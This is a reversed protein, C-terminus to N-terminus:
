GIRSQNFLTCKVRIDLYWQYDVNPILSKDIVLYGVYHEVSPSLSDQLEIRPRFRLGSLSTSGATVAPYEIAPVFRRKAERNGQYMKAKDISLYDAFKATSSVIGSSKHWPLLIYNPVPSSSTSVNGTPIVRVIVSHLRYAEFNGSLTNFEAFESPAIHLPQLEPENSSARVITTNRLEFTFNGKSRKHYRRRFPMRRRRILFRRRYARRPVYARRRYRFAM